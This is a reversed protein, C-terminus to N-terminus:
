YGTIENAGFTGTKRRDEWYMEEDLEDLSPPLVMLDLLNGIHAFADTYDDNRSRPFKHLEEFFEAYWGNDKQFYVDGLRMRGQMSKARTIKDKRAQLEEIPVFIKRRQMESNLFPGIALQIQGKELGFLEPKYRKYLDFIREVIELGDYRGKEAYVIELRGLEDLAAVVFATYNAQDGQSVALDAAIYFKKTRRAWNEDKLSEKFWDSKFFATGEDVPDNLYEQNYLDPLGQNAFEDKIEELKTTSFREKWLIHQFDTSHARYKASLWEGRVLGKSYIKLPTIVTNESSLKPMLNELLSDLHLITGVIRIDGKISLIPRVAGYFWRKFKRRRDQNLVIEDDEIDDVVVLDPRMREWKTGRMKQGAGKAIIRFKHGDKFKGIVETETEKIWKQFQFYQALQENEVLETKIDGVFDAAMDETSSLILVHKKERFLLCGLVFAFTIATSKAHSRPVALAVKHEPACCYEWMERHFAPVEGTTEDYRGLLFTQTFGALVDANLEM